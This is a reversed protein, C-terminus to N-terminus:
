AKRGELWCWSAAPPQAAPEKGLVGGPWQLLTAQCQRGLDRGEGGQLSLTIDSLVESTPFSLTGM